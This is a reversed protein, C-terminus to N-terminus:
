GMVRNRGGQKAQYLKEDAQRILQTAVLQNEGARSGVGVSITIQFEEDGYRFTQQAIEERLREALVMAQRGTTEPAVVGFEEGGYRAFLDERRLCKKIRAAMERLAHDGGLHGLRDNVAKFWDIDLMLLALPRGFRASRAVEQDLYELFFRKNYTGTLADIITLRYIEDHYQAEINGSALFRFIHTGLRLYDGDHLKQAAVRVDNVFTGNTSNLDVVQYVEGDFELRAHHRSVAEDVMAISCGADRGLALEGGSLTFRSGMQPGTPYIQVLCADRQSVVQAPQTPAVRVKTLKRTTPPAIAMTQNFGNGVVLLRRIRKFRQWATLEFCSLSRSAM